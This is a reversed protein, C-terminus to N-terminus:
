INRLYGRLTSFSGKFKKVAELACADKSTWTKSHYFAVVRERQERYGGPQSHRKNIGVRGHAAFASMAEKASRNGIKSMLAVVTLFPVPQKGFPIHLTDPEKSEGTLLTAQRPLADVFAIIEDAEREARSIEAVWLGALVAPPLFGMM